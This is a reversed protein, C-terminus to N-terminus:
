MVSKFKLVPVMYGPCTGSILYLQLTQMHIHFDRGPLASYNNAWKSYDLPIAGQPCGISNATGKSVWTAGLESFWCSPSIGYPVTWMKLGKVCLPSNDPSNIACFITIYLFYTTRATLEDGRTGCIHTLSNPWSQNLYHMQFNTLSIAAMKDLPLHTLKSLLGTEIFVWFHWKVLIPFRM